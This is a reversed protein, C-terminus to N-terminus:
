GRRRKKAAAKTKKISHFMQPPIPKADIREVPAHSPNSMPPEGNALWGLRVGFVAAIARWTAMKEPEVEGELWRRVVTPAYPKGPPERSEDAAGIRQGLEDLSIRGRERTELAQRADFMRAAVAEDAM